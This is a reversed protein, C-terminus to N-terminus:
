RQWWRIQTTKCSSKPPSFVLAEKDHYTSVIEILKTLTLTEERYLKSKLNRDSIHCLVRDRVQNDREDGYECFEVATKLRTIFNNITEGQKPNTALFTQRAMPVNKKLKFHDSLCKVAKDFDTENGRVDVAYTNFIDRVGPGALHLLLARKQADSSVGSAAVYLRFEGEWTTWRQALTAPEGVADFHGLCPLGSLAVAMNSNVEEDSSEETSRDNIEVEEDGSTADLSM